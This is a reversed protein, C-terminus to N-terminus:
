LKDMPDDNVRGKEIGLRAKSISNLGIKESLQVMQNYCGQNITWEPRVQEAGSHFSMVMGNRDLDFSTQFYRCVAKAYAYLLHKDVKNLQKEDLEAVVDNYINREDETLYVIDKSGRKVIEIKNSENKAKAIYRLASEVAKIGTKNGSEAYDLMKQILEQESLKTFDVGKTAMHKHKKIGSLVRIVEVAGVKAM